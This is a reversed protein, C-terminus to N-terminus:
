NKKEALITAQHSHGLAIKETRESKVVKQKILQLWEASQCTM